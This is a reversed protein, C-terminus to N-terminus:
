EGGIDVLDTTKEGRENNKREKKPHSVLLGGRNGKREALGKPVEKRSGRGVMKAM